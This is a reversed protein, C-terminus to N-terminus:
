FLEDLLIYYHIKEWNVKQIKLVKEDFLVITSDSMGVSDYSYDEGELLKEIESPWNM